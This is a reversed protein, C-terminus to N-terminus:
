RLFCKTDVEGVVCNAFPNEAGRVGFHLHPGTTRGTVGVYGIVQGKQVYEGVRSIDRVMHAYLTQTGNGHDIVVYNGYGGNWGRVRAVIVTGAAAAHIPTGIPVGIDFANWGHITQTIIGGPIPNGFFGPLARGSGGLYPEAPITRSIRHWVGRIGHSVRGRGRRRPRPMEGNPIIITDGTKLSAGVALGNYLAIGGAKADYKKAISSLTEGKTVTHRVGSVPLILLTDGPKILGPNTINNAWFITNVSVGFMQAIESLSDGPRVVYLSIQGDSNSFTHASAGSGNPGAAAILALDGTMAIAVNDAAAAAARPDPATPAQLLGMASNHVFPMEQSLTDAAANSFPWFAGAPTPLITTILSLAVVTAGVISGVWYANRGHRLFRADGSPKKKSM